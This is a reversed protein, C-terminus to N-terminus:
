PLSPSRYHSLTVSLIQIELCTNRKEKSDRRWSASRLARLFRCAVVAVLALQVVVSCANRGCATTKRSRASEQATQFACNKQEQSTRCIYAYYQTDLKSHAHLSRAMRLRCRADLRFSDARDANFSSALRSTAPGSRTPLRFSETRRSYGALGPQFDKREASPPM